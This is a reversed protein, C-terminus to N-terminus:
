DCKPPSDLDKTAVENTSASIGIIKEMNELANKAARNHAIEKKSGYVGSGVFEENILVEVRM